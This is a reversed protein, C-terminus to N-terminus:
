NKANKWRWNKNRQNHGQVYKKDRGHKNVSCIMTGCGCACPIMKREKKVSQSYKKLNEIGREIEFDRMPTKRKSKHPKNAVEIPLHSWKKGKVIQSIHTRSVGFESGLERTSAGDSYKKRIELVQSETLKATGSREGCPIRDNIKRDDVNQQRTGWALNRYDNDNKDDNLHRGEYGDPRPGVWAKLVAHHVFYKKQRKNKYLYIFKYGSKNTMQKLIRPKNASKNFSLIEGVSSVYYEEFGPIRKYMTGNYLLEVENM